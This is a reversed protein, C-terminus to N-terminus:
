AKTSGLTLELKAALKDTIPQKGEILQTTKQESQSISAAFNKHSIGKNLLIENITDGPPSAWMPSFSDGM